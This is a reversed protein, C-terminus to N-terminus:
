EPCPGVAGDVHQSNGSVTITGSCSTAPNGSFFCVFQVDLEENTVEWRNGSIPGRFSPDDFQVTCGSQTLPGEAELPGFCFCWTGAQVRICGSRPTPSPSPRGVTASPVPTETPTNTASPQPTNTATVTETPTGTLSPTFSPTRTSTQTRTPTITRTSTPTRTPAPTRTPCVLNCPCYAADVGAVLEDVTVTGDEDVDFAPCLDVRLSGLAIHVGLVLENVAVVLDHNCDGVCGATVGAAAGVPDSLSDMFTAARVKLAQGATLGLSLALSVLLSVERTM